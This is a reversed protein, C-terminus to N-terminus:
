GTVKVKVRRWAMTIEFNLSFIASLILFAIAILITADNKQGTVAVGYLAGAFGFVLLNLATTIKFLSSSQQFGYEGTVIRSIALVASLGSNSISIFLLDPSWNEDFDPIPKAAFHFLGHMLLPMIGILLGCIWDGLAMKTESRIM